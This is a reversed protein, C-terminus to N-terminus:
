NILGDNKYMSLQAILHNDEKDMSPFPIGTLEYLDKKEKFAAPSDITDLLTYAEKVLNSIEERKIGKELRVYSADFIATAMHMCYLETKPANGQAKAKLHHKIGESLLLEEEACPYGLCKFWLRASLVYLYAICADSRTKGHMAATHAADFIRQAEPLRGDLAFIAEVIEGCMNILPMDPDPNDSMVTSCLSCFEDAKTKTIDAWMEGCADMLKKSRVQTKEPMFYYYEWADVFENFATSAPKDEKFGDFLKVIAGCVQHVLGETFPDNWDLDYEAFLDETDKKEM